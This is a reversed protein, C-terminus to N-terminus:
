LDALDVSGCEDSRRARAEVMERDDTADLSLNNGLRREGDEHGELLFNRPFEIAVADPRIEGLPETTFIVGVPENLNALLVRRQHDALVEPEAVKERMVALTVYPGLVHRQIRPQEVLQLQNQRLDAFMGVDSRPGPQFSLHCKVHVATEPCWRMVVSDPAGRGVAPVLMAIRGVDCDVGVAVSAHRQLIFSENLAGDLLHFFLVRVEDPTKPEVGARVVMRRVYM